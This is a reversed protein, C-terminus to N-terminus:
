ASADRQDVLCHRRRRSKRTFLGQFSNPLFPSAVREVRAGAHCSRRLGQHFQCGSMRADTETADWIRICVPIIAVNRVSRRCM